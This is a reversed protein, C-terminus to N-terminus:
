KSSLRNKEHKLKNKQQYIVSIITNPQLNAIIVIILNILVYMGLQKQINVDRANMKLHDTIESYGILCYDCYYSTNMFANISKITYFHNNHYAIYIYNKCKSLKNHHIPQYKSTSWDFCVIRYEMLYVEIKLIDTISLPKTKDFKLLDALDNVQKTFAKSNV